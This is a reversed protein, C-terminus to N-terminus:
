ILPVGTLLLTYGDPRSRAVYETGINTAGGARADIVIPQGLAKEMKPALVRLFKDGSGGAAFPLIVTIPKQPYKEEGAPFASTSALTAALATLGVFGLATRQM